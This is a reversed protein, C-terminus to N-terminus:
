QISNNIQKIIQKKLNLSIDKNAENPCPSIQASLPIEKALYNDRKTQNLQQQSNRKKFM